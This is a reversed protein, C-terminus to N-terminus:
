RAAECEEAAAPLQFYILACKKVSHSRNRCKGKGGQRTFAAPSPSWPTGDSQSGGTQVAPCINARQHTNNKKVTGFLQDFAM